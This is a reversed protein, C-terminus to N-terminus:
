QLKTLAEQVADQSPDLRLSMRYANRALTGEGRQGRWWGWVNLEEVIGPVDVLLPEAENLRGVWVYALGLAKHTTTNRPDIRFAAELRVIADDHRGASMDLIGLRQHASRSQPNLTRGLQYDMWARALLREAQVESLEEVLEARAQRLAGRNVVMLSALFRWSAAGALLVIGVGAFAIVQTRRPLKGEITRRPSAGTAVTLGLLAFLPAFTWLAAYQPADFFGHVLIATLGLWAGHFVPNTVARARLAQAVLRYFAIVLWAFGIVGALGQQLWVELWLNHSYTLRVHRILLVYRSYIMAYAPGLGIGTFAFDEVLYLSRRWLAVRDPLVILEAVLPGILPIAQLTDGMLFSSGVLALAVLATVGILFWRWRRWRVISGLVSVSALAVWAGRSVSMLLAALMTLTVLACLLRTLPRSAVIAGVLALPLIGELFAAVYNPHPRWIDLRPMFRALTAGMLHIWQSKVRYTLHGYQTVFFVALVFALVVLVASVGKAGRESRALWYCGYYLIMGGALAAITPISLAIDYVVILGLGAGVLFLGLPGDLPTRLDRIASDSM